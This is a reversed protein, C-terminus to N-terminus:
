VFYIEDNMLCKKKRKRGKGRRRAQNGGPLGEKELEGSIEVSAATAAVVEEAAAVETEMASKAEM